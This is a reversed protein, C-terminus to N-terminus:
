DTWLGAARLRTARALRQYKEDTTHGDWTEVTDTRVHAFLDIDDEALHWCAQGTPLHIFLVPWGPEMPDSRYQLHSPYHTALNALLHARERYLDSLDAQDATM